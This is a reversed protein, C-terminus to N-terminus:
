LQAVSVREPDYVVHARGTMFGVGAEKIGDVKKLMKEIALACTYCDM